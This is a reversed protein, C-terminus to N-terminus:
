KNKKYRPEVVCIVSDKIMQEKVVKTVFPTIENAIELVREKKLETPETCAFLNEIIVKRIEDEM